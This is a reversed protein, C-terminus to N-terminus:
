PIKKITTEIHGECRNGARLSKVLIEADIQKDFYIRDWYCDSMGCKYEKVSIWVKGFLPHRLQQEVFYRISQVKGKSYYELMQIRYQDLGWRKRKKENNDLMAIFFLMFILIIFTIFFITM